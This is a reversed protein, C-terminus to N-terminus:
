ESLSPFSRFGMKNEKMVSYFDFGGLMTKYIETYKADLDVDAFKEPYITAGIFYADCVGTDVNTGNFNYFPQTYLNNSQFAKLGDFFDKNEAYDKKMLDLNGANLFMYDPNWNGIQELDVDLAGPVGVADAVNVANVAMAPAYNNYTGGWSKAGKYNVAGLYITPKDAAAIDKTRDNLDAEWTKLADVTAKAHAETGLAEGVVEISKIVDDTFLQNQYSIGVVPIGTTEQLQNCEEASRSSIIVQPNALLMEETNVSTEMLHNGNSTAPLSKFLDAFAMSYPRNLAPQTEMETVAVLKDQAGAYVVFRAGSGVTAAREVTAPIEVSRNYADVVTKTAASVASASASAASASASASAASASAASASASASASSSSQGSTCATLALAFMAALAVLLIATRKKM